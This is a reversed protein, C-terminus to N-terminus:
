QIVFRWLDSVHMQITLYGTITKKILLSLYSQLLCPIDILKRCVLNRVQFRLPHNAYSSLYVNQILQLRFLQM